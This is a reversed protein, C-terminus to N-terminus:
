KREFTVQRLITRGVPVLSARESKGTAANVLNVEINGAVFVPNSKKALAFKDASVPAYLYDRLPGFYLRDAVEKAAIPRAYVL